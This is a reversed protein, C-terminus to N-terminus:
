PLPHGLVALDRMAYRRHELHEHLVTRLSEGLSRTEEGWSTSLVASRPEDLRDDTLRALEDDVEDWHAELVARAEALTPHAEPDLGWENQLATLEADAMAVGLPNFPRSQGRIMGHIWTDMAFVLHRLTQLFSWEDEVRRDLLDPPLMAAADIMDTWLGRLLAWAHRYDDASTMAAFVVREPFQQDLQALVYDRVEIGEVLISGLEGAHADIRVNHVWSGRVRLGRLDCGEVQLDSLDSERFRAGKFDATATYTDM